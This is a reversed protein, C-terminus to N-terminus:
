NQDDPRKGVDDPSKGDYDGNTNGVTETEMETALDGTTIETGLQIFKKQDPTSPLTLGPQSNNSTLMKSSRRPFSNKSPFTLTM